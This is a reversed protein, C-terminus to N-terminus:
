TTVQKRLISLPSAQRPLTLRLAMQPIRAEDIPFGNGDALDEVRFSIPRIGPGVLELTDGQRFKNRLSCVAKGEPSCSTVMASVQWDRIYRADGVYQEPHGYYFGESYPRHSVKDLEARWVPDLPEGSLVAAIGQRYAGTVIAAYYASKARGEIKLSDLGVEMLEPIHDIMCMDKSNFIYTGQDNEEVPFFEGPRQEEMLAYKYRCPQACSGRSADRGAMYNSLVCRGSFSVCMAGHVFAEVELGQPRKACIERIEELTLERALIVRQAGQDYWFQAAAYNTVGIQTSMHTPLSPAYRKALALIGVDGIILADVGLEQLFSLYDPLGALEENRPMTNCTVHVKVGHSHCLRVAHTLGEQTFNGAFSRMGYLQGALYVADAGYAVAMQLRELDGAPALLEPAKGM